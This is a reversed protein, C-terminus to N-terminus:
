DARRNTCHLFTAQQFRVRAKSRNSGGKGGPLQLLSTFTFTYHSSQTERKEGSSSVNFWKSESKLYLQITQRLLSDSCKVRLLKSSCICKFSDLLYCVCRSPPQAFRQSSHLGLQCGSYCDSACIYITEQRNVCTCGCLM